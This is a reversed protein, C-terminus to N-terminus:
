ALEVARESAEQDIRARAADGADRVSPMATEASSASPTEAIVPTPMAPTAPVSWTAEDTRTVAIVPPAPIPPPATDGPREARLPMKAPAAGTAADTRPNAAARPNAEPVIAAATRRPTPARSVSPTLAPGRAVPQEVRTQQLPEAVPTVAPEAATVQPPVVVVRLDPAEIRRDQRPFGLGPLWLGQGGFILSLLWTHILLSLLLAHTLRRHEPSMRQSDARRQLVEARTAIKM